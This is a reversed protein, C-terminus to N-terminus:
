RPRTGVRTPTSRHVLVHPVHRERRGWTRPPPGFAKVAALVVLSNDGRAHPHVAPNRASLRSAGLRGWARPPPGVKVKRTTGHGHTTGVRTPTSRGQSGLSRARDHRGWARPPPGLGIKHLATITGKDGHAHPHVASTSRPPPRVSTTGVRTPTSRDVQGGERRPLRRGWARPPPGIIYLHTLQGTM